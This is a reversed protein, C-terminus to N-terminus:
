RIGASNDIQIQKAMMDNYKKLAFPEGVQPNKRRWLAWQDLLTPILRIEYITGFETKGLLIIIKDDLIRKERIRLDDRYLHERYTELIKSLKHLNNSWPNVITFSIVDNMRYRLNFREGGVMVRDMFINKLEQPDMLNPRLEVSMNSQQIIGNILKTLRKYIEMHNIVLRYWDIDPYRLAECQADELRDFTIIQFNTFSEDDWNGVLLSSDPSIKSEPTLLVQYGDNVKRIRNM